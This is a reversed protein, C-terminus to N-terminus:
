TRLLWWGVITVIICGVSLALSIIVPYEDRMHQPSREMIPVGKMSSLDTIAITIRQKKTCWGTFPRSGREVCTRHDYLQMRLLDLFSRHIDVNAAPM